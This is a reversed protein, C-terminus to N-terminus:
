QQSARGQRRAGGLIARGGDVAVRQVPTPKAKLTVVQNRLDKRGLHLDRVLLQTGAPTRGVIIGDGAFHV